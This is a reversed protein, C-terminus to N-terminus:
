IVGDYDIPAADHLSDLVPKYNLSSNAEPGVLPAIQDVVEEELSKPFSNYKELMEAKIEEAKGAGQMYYSGTEKSSRSVLTHAAILALIGAIPGAAAFMTLALMVVVVNGFPTDILKALMMPTDINFVIYVVMIFELVRKHRNEANLFTDLEKM